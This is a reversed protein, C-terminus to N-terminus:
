LRPWQGQDARRFLGRDNLNTYLREVAGGVANATGEAITLPLSPIAGIFGGIAAAVNAGFAAGGTQGAAQSREGIDRTEAPTVPHSALGRASEVEAASVASGAGRGIGAGAAGGLTAGLYTAIYEAQAQANLMYPDNQGRVIPLALVPDEDMAKKTAASIAEVDRQKALDQLIVAVVVILFLLAVLKVM